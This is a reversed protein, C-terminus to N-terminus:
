SGAEPKLDDATDEGIVKIIDYWKQVLFGPNNPNRSAMKSTILMAISVGIVLLLVYEIVIQGGQRTLIGERSTKKLKTM